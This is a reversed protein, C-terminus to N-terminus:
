KLRNIHTIDSDATEFTAKLTISEGADIKEICYWKKKLRMCDGVDLNFMLPPTQNGWWNKEKLASEPVDCVFRFAGIPRPDKPSVIIYDLKVHCDNIREVKGMEINITAPESYGCSVLLGMLLGLNAAGIVFESLAKM